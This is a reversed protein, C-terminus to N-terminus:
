LPFLYDQADIRLHGMAEIPGRDISRPFAIRTGAHCGSEEAEIPGRDISRPFRM